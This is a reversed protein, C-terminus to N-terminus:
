ILTSGTGPEAHKRKSLVWIGVYALFGVVSMLLGMSVFRLKYVLEITHRGTTLYIGTMGGNVMLKPTPKGDVLLQWGKDFPISLYMLRTATATISGTIHTDTFLTVALTDKSLANIDARYADLSFPGMPITDRLLFTEMPAVTAMDADKLICAKLTVFDKQYLSLGAFDSERICKSYTYGFPLVFKNKFLKVNGFTLPPECIYEWIPSIETKALIYKVQNQAELSARDEFSGAWRTDKESTKDVIGMLALYNIFNLQNFSSYSSTGNYGQAMGDNDSYHVAPSSAYTKDIRYFSHDHRRIYDLAEVTHDNYGTRDEIETATLADRNAVATNSMFLLEVVICGLLIYKLRLVNGPRGMFYLIAGYGILLMSIFASLTTDPALQDSYPIHLVLLSVVLSAILTPVHVKRQELIYQLALLAYFLITLAIFLAYTRYYNGSFLWLAYRLYPFLVPLLLVALFIIFATRTRGRLFQFLQPLLLLCPLGCYLMPGELYNTWGRYDSGTGLLDGSFLRLIATGLEVGGPLGFMPAHSLVATFNYQGSGRPSELIQAINELLFPASLLIGVVALGLLSLYRVVIKGPNLVGLQFNRLLLYGAFFLSYVYLSFPTSVAVIFVALPLFLMKRNVLFQEVSWLLFIVYFLDSSFVYWSGGIITYSCFSILLSGIAATYPSLDLLRIYKFFLYGTLLIKILEKYVMGYMIFHRGGAYLLVNFPDNLIAPFINQGMGSRFSWSPMETTHLYDSVACLQPYFINLTDGGIDKFLYAKGLFVFDRFVIIAMLLILGLALWIARNGAKEFVDPMASLPGTSDANLPGSTQNKPTFVRPYM